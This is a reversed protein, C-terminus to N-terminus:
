PWCSAKGAQMDAGGYVGDWEGLQTAGYKDRELTGLISTKLRPQTYFKMTM